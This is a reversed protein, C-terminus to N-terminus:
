GLVISGAITLVLWLMLSCIVVIILASKQDAVRANVKTRLWFGAAISLMLAM